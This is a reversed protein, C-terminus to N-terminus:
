GFYIRITQINPIDKCAHTYQLELEEASSADLLQLPLLFEIQLQGDLYHLQLNKMEAYGLLNECSQKLREELETRSLLNLSPRAIEDNEPDTHVTVDSIKSFQNLLRLYVQDSIYHGESVSIKPSVQ